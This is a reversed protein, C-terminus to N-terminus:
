LDSKKVGDVWVGDKKVEVKVEGSLPGITKDGIRISDDEISLIRGDIELKTKTTSGGASTQTTIEYKAAMGPAITLIGRARATDFTVTGGGQDPRLDVSSISSTNTQTPPVRTTDSCACALLVLLLTCRMGGLYGISPSPDPSPGSRASIRHWDRNERM